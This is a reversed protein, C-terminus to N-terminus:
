PAIYHLGHRSWDSCQTAAQAALEHLVGARAAARLTDLLPDAASPDEALRAEYFVVVGALALETTRVPDAQPRGDEIISAAYALLLEAMYPMGEASPVLAAVAPCFAVTLQPTTTAWEILQVRFDQARASSPDRHLSRIMQAFDSLQSLTLRRIDQETSVGPCHYGDVYIRVPGSSCPIEYLDVVHGDPGAGVNGVRARAGRESSRGLPARGDSCRWNAVFAYDTRGAGGNMHCLLFPSAESGDGEVPTATAGGRADGNTSRGGNSSAASNACGLTSLALLALLGMSRIWQTM